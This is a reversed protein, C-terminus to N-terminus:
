EKLIDVPYYSAMDPLRHMFAKMSWMAKCAAMRGKKYKKKLQRRYKLRMKGRSISSPIDEFNEIFKIPNYSGDESKYYYTASQLHKYKKPPM